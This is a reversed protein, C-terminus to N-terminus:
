PLVEQLPDTFIPANANADSGWAKRGQALAERLTSGTGAFPDAVLEGPQTTALIIRRLLPRPLQNAYGAHDRGVNKQLDILWWDYPARGPSGADILAKARKDTPNKYPEPDAKSDLAPNGKTFRWIDRSSRTFASASHGINSPYVWAIRQGIEWGQAVFCDMGHKFFFEPYHVVFLHADDAAVKFAWAGFDHMMELYDPRRDSVSGYDHGINYPPDTMILRPSKPPTVKRFDGPLALFGPIGYLSGREQLCGVLHDCPSTKM